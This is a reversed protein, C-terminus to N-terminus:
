EGELAEEAFNILMEGLEDANMKMDRYDHAYVRIKKGIIQQQKTMVVKGCYGCTLFDYLKSNPSLGYPNIDKCYECKKKKNEDM